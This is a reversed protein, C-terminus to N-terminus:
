RGVRRRFGHAVSSLQGAVPAFGTVGARWDSPDLAGLDYRALPHEAVPLLLVLLAALSDTTPDTLDPAALSPADSRTGAHLWGSM